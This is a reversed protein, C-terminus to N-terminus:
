RQLLTMQSQFLRAQGTLPDTFALCQALLQLPHRYDPLAIADHLVHPYLQLHWLRWHSKSGSKTLSQALQPSKGTLM